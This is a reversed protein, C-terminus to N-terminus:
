GDKLRRKALLKIVAKRYADSQYDSIDLKKSKFKTTPSKALTKGNTKAEEFDIGGQRNRLSDVYKEFASKETAASGGGSGGRGGSHRHGYGGRRYRRYGGKGYDKWGGSTDIGVDSKLSFDRISGYPNTESYSKGYLAEWILAKAERKYDTSDIVKEVSEKKNYGYGDKKVKNDLEQLTKASIKHHKLGRANNIYYVCKRKKGPADLMMYARDSFGGEAVIRAKFPADHNYNKSNGDKQKDKLSNAGSDALSMVKLAESRSGKHGFYAKMLADHEKTVGFAKKLQKKSGLDKDTHILVAALNGYQSNTGTGNEKNQKTMERYLKYFDDDKGGAKNYGKYIKRITKDDSFNLVVKEGDKMYSSKGKLVAKM